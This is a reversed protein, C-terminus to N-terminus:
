SPREAELFIDPRRQRKAEQYLDWRKELDDFGTQV